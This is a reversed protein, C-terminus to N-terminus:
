NATPERLVSDVIVVDLPARREELELGTKALYQGLVNSPAADLFRMAQPPLVVGNNIAARMLAFQYDEQSLDLSFDFRDPNGTADVTKRESFRTLATALDAMTLNKVELKNSALSFTGPGLNIVIGAGSGGGSAEIAAPQAASPDVPTGKVKLGGKSVTLAYIPFERSEKHAKLEFRDALLAQLMQPIQERTGDAPINASIDFRQQAVWEPAVVQPPELDYAMSIYDKLSLGSIRVQSGTIRLGVSAAADLRGSGATPRISAVEFEPTKQAFAPTTFGPTILIAAFLLWVVAPRLSLM